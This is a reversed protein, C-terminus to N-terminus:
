WTWRVGLNGGLPSEIKSGHSYRTDAYIQFEKNIQVSLGAGLEGRTGSLDNRFRNGNIRVENDDSFEQIVATRLWPQVQIGDRLALTKGVVGNLAAQRSTVSGSSAELANSFTYSQGKVWLSSVQLSPEVFWGDGLPIHRGAEVSLGLAPVNYGGTARQGDSMQVDASSSFNNAKAVADIFWGSGLLWTGYGGIFFSNLTGHSNGTFDLASRSVGSFLGAMMVGNNVPHIADVGLSIGSQHQTYSVGARDNVDYKDGMMKVWAGGSDNGMRVDGMRTRLTNLEGYWATPTANFLGLATLTSPTPVLEGGGAGEDGEGNKYKPALVWDNDRKQLEYQWTGADVAGGNLTFQGSGGGSKVVTLASDSKEPERGSNKIYLLHDGSVTNAVSILDGQMAALDTNMSFAGDGSLSGLSLTLFNNGSHSFVTAGNHQFRDLSSNGTMAWSSSQDLNLSDVNHIAGTLQSQNSLALTVDNTSAARIDGQLVVHNDATLSVRQKQGGASSLDDLLIGNGGKLQTGNKLELDLGAGNTRIAANKESVMTVNDFTARSGEGSPISSVYLGAANEGQTVLQSNSLYLEGARAWLAHSDAGSTQVMLGDGNITSGPYALLGAAARGATSVAVHQLNIVGGRAAFVGIGSDGQTDISVNDALVQAESYLGYSGAGHTTLTSDRLVANGSQANFAHSGAGQTTFRAGSVAASSDASAIWLADAHDSQTTFEGGSIEARAAKNVNVAMGGQTNVNTNTLTVDGGLIYVGDGDHTSITSDTLNLSGHGVGGANYIDVGRNRGTASINVLHGAVQGNGLMLGAQTGEGRLIINVNNLTASADGATSYALVIGRSGSGTALISSNAMNLTGDTLTVGSSGVGDAAVALNNLSIDAGHSGFVGSSNAGAVTINGGNMLLSGDDINAGHAMVGNTALTAGTLHIDGGALVNAAYLLGGTTRFNLGDVTTQLLSGAGSALLPYDNATDSVYGGTVDLTSGDTVRWPSAAAADVPIAAALALLCSRSLFSLNFSAM